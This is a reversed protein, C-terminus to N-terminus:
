TTAMFDLVSMPYTLAEARLTTDIQTNSSNFTCSEGKMKIYGSSGKGKQFVELRFEDPDTLLGNLVCYFVTM